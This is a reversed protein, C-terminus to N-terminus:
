GVGLMDRHLPRSMFPQYRLAFMRLDDCIRDQSHHLRGTGPLRQRLHLGDCRMTGMKCVIHNYSRNM